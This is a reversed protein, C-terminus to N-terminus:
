WNIIKKNINNLIENCKSFPKSGIFKPYEGLNKNCSLPSPHSSIITYHKSKDINKIKNLAFQGWVIFIINELKNIELIIRETFNNWEKIHSGPKGQIVTLSSNLLLIGQKGWNELSNDILEINLDSYLEKKINNLSPPIKINENVGFCLGTAQNLGHYPDQGIIVVKIEDFPCIDFAKLILNESPFIQIPLLNIRQKLIKNLIINIDNKNLIDEWTNM